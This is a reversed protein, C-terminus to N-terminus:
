DDPPDSRTDDRDVDRVAKEIREHRRPEGQQATERQETRERESERHQENM